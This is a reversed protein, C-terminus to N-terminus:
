QQPAAPQQQGQVPAEPADDIMEQMNSEPVDDSTSTSIFANSSLTLVIIGIALGWTLKEIFDTTRKVGMINNGASFNSAIGGGKPNQILVVLILLIAAIVILVSIVTFM